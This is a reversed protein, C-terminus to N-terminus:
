VGDFGARKLNAALNKNSRVDSATKAVADLVVGDREIVYSHKGERVTAGAREATAIIDRVERRGARRGSGTGPVATRGNHRSPRDRRSSIVPEPTEPPLYAYVNTVGVREVEFSGDDVLQAMWRRLTPESLEPLEAGLEALTFAELKIAADRVREHWRCGFPDPIAPAKDVAWYRTGRNLGTRRVFGCEIALELASKIRHQSVGFHEALQTSTKGQRTRHHNLHASVEGALLARESPEWQQRLMPKPLLEIHELAEAERELRIAEAELKIARQRAAQSEARCQRARDRLFEPTIDEVTMLATM